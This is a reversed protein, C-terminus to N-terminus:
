GRITSNLSLNKIRYENTKLLSEKLEDLSSYCYFENVSTGNYLVYTIQIHCDYEDPAEILIKGIKGQKIVQESSCRESKELYVITDRVNFKTKIKM